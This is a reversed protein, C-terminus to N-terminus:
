RWREQNKYPDTGVGVRSVQVVGMAARTAPSVMGLVIRVSTDMTDGTHSEDAPSASAAQPPSHLVVYAESFPNRAHGFRYRDDDPHYPSTITDMEDVMDM